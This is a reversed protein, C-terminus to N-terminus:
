IAYLKGMSRREKDKSVGENTSPRRDYATSSSPGLSKNSQLGAGTSLGSKSNRQKQRWEMEREKMKEDRKDNAVKLLAQM